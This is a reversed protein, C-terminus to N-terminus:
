QRQHLAILAQWEEKALHATERIFRAYAPQSIIIAKVDSALKDAMGLLADPDKRLLVAMKCITKEGPLPGQGTEMKSLFTPSVGVQKAFGRLGWGKELRWQRISKGFISDGMYFDALV